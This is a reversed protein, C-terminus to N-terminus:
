SRAALQLGAAAAAIIRAGGPSKKAGCSTHTSREAVHVDAFDRHRGAAIAAQDRGITVRQLFKNANLVWSDGHFDCVISEFSQGAAMKAAAPQLAARLRACRGSGSRLWGPRGRSARRSECRRVVDIPQPGALHQGVLCELDHELVVHDGHDVALVAEALRDALLGRLQADFFARLCPTATMASRLAPCKPRMPSQGSNAARAPLTESCKTLVLPAPMRTAGNPPM